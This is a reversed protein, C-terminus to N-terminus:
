TRADYRYVAVAENVQGVSARIVLDQLGDFDVDEHDLRSRGEEDAVGDLRQLAADKGIRVDVGGDDRVRARVPVGPAAEFAVGGADQAQAQMPMGASSLSMVLLSARM